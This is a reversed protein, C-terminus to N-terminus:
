WRIMITTHPQEGGDAYWKSVRGDFVLKDNTWVVNTLADLVAKDLNDRDRLATMPLRPMPRTKWQLRKPRSFVFICDVEIPCDLMPGEFCRAAEIRIAAKYEAIGNKTPTYLRSKGGFCTARCRPQSIPEGPIYLLLEM